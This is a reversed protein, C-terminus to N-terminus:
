FRNMIRWPHEARRSACAAQSVMLGGKGNQCRSRCCYVGAREGGSNLLESLDSAPAGDPLPRGAQRSGGVPVKVRKGRSKEFLKGEGRSTGWPQVCDREAVAEGRQLPIPPM